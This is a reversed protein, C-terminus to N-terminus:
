KNKVPTYPNTKVGLKTNSSNHNPIHNSSEVYRIKPTSKSMIPSPSKYHRLFKSKNSNNNNSGYGQNSLNPIHRRSNGNTIENNNKDINMDNKGFSVALPVKFEKHSKYKGFKPTVNSVNSVKSNPNSNYKFNSNNNM